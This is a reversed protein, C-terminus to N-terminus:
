ALLDFLGELDAIRRYDNSFLGHRDLLVAAIGCSAAGRYDDLPSDGVHLCAPVPVGLRAAAREFIVPSPKEVGEIASVLIADFYRDLDLGSLLGPLRSDWNSVVALPLKRRRLEALVARVEPYVFWVSPEAFAAFLEDLVPEWPAPHGVRVLVRRVFEGWWAREGGKLLHYRDLGPPHLQTLECWTARFAPAVLDSGIPPGHSSLVRAYLEAPSPQSDILTGGVDLLLAAIPNGL